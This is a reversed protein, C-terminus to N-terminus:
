FKDFQFHFVRKLCECCYQLSVLCLISASTYNLKIAAFGVSLPHFQLDMNTAHMNDDRTVVLSM